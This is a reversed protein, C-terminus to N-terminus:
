DNFEKEALQKFIDDKNKDKVLKKVAVFNIIFAIIAGILMGLFFM